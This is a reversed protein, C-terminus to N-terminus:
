LSKHLMAVTDPGLILISSKNLIIIANLVRSLNEKRNSHCDLLSKYCM